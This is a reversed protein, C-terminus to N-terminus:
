PKYELLQPASWVGSLATVAMSYLSLEAECGECARPVAVVVVGGILPIVALVSHPFVHSPDM